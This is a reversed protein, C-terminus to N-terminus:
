RIFFEVGNVYIISNGPFVKGALPSSPSVSTVVTGSVDSIFDKLHIGVKGPPITVTTKENQNFM